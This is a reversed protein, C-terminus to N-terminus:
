ANCQPLKRQPSKDNSSGDNAEGQPSSGTPANPLRDNALVSPPAVGNLVNNPGQNGGRNAPLSTGSAVNLPQPPPASALANGGFSNASDGGVTGGIFTQNPRMALAPQLTPPELVLPPPCVAVANPNILTETTQSAVAIQSQTQLVPAAINNQLTIAQQALTTIPLPLIPTTDPPPATVTPPAIM